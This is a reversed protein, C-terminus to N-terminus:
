ALEISGDANRFKSPIMTGTHNPHWVLKHSDEVPVDIINCTSQGNYLFEQYGPKGWQDRERSECGIVSVHTLTPSEQFSAVAGRTWANQLETRAITAIRNANIKPFTDRMKDITEVVSLNQELMRSITTRFKERTVDNLGVIRTGIERAERAIRASAEANAAQGLLTATRSYGQAMVSQVPPVIELVINIQEEAFVENLAQMWLAEHQAFPIEITLPAKASRTGLRQQVRLFVKEMQARFVTAAKRAVFSFARRQTIKALRSMAVVLRRGNAAFSEGTWGGEPVDVAKVLATLAIRTAPDTQWREM